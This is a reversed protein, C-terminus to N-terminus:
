LILTCFRKNNAVSGDIEDLILEVVNTGFVTKEYTQQIICNSNAGPGGKWHIGKVTKM